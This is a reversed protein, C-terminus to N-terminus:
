ESRAAAMLVFVGIGVATIAARMVELLFMIREM